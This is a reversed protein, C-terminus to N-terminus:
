IGLATKLSDTATNYASSIVGGLGDAANAVVLGVFVLLIAEELGPGGKQDKMIKMMLLKENAKRLLKKM